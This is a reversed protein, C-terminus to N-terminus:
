KSIVASERATTFGYLSVDVGKGQKGWLYCGPHSSHPVTVVVNVNIRFVWGQLKVPKMRGGQGVELAGPLVGVYLANQGIFKIAGTPEWIGWRVAVHSLGKM